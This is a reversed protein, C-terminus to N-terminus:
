QVPILVVPPPPPSPIFRQVQAGVSPQNPPPQYPQVPHFVYPQYAPYHSQPLATPQYSQVYTPQYSQQGAAASFAALTGYFGPGSGHNAPIDLCMSPVLCHTQADISNPDQCGALGILAACAIFIRHM